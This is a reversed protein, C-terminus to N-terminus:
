FIVGFSVQVAEEGTATTLDDFGRSLDVYFWDYVLGLGLTPGGFGSNLFSYGARLFFSQAVGLESGVMVDPDGLDRWQDEVDLAVALGFTSDSSFSSLPRYAVGVRVRTPLPDEEVAGQLPFGLHRISGGVSLPLGAVSGLILGLDVAHTTRTFSQQDACQGDCRFILQILKYNIGVELDGVLAAAYSLLFEQNRVNINGQVMGDSDTSALDGFDVLYYTVALTGLSETPWLLALVDSRTDFVAESHNFLLRRDELGAVGAPNWLVLEGIGRLGTVAGGMGVARAGVPVLLFTAGENASGGRGRIPQASGEEEESSMIHSQAGALSPVALPGLLLALLALKSPKPRM